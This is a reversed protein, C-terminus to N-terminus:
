EINEETECTYYAADVGYFHCCVLPSFDDVDVGGTGEEACLGCGFLHLVLAATACYYECGTDASSSYIEWLGLGCIVDTFGSNHGHLIAQRSLPGSITDPNITDARPIHICYQILPFPQFLRPTDPRTPIGHTPHPSHPLQIPNHHQQTRPRPTIDVTSIKNNISTSSNELRHYNM